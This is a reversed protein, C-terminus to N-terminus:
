ARSGRHNQSKSVPFTGSKSASVLSNFVELLETAVVSWSRNWHTSIAKADWSDDLVRALAKALAAADRPPALM